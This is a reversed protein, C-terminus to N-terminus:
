FPIDDDDLDIPLMQSAKRPEWVKLEFPTASPTPLNKKAPPRTPTKNAGGGPKWNAIKCIEQIGTENPSGDDKTLGYQNANERLWKELAMKPTKGNLHKDPESTVFKWANVAAALKSAYFANQPNVYEEAVVGEPFFFSPYYNKSSLFEKLSEVNVTAYDISLLDAAPAGDYGDQYFEPNGQIKGNLLGNVLATKLSGYGKPPDYTTSGEIERSSHNAPDYGLILMIAQFVSIDDCLRWHDFNEMFNSKLLKLSNELLLQGVKRL